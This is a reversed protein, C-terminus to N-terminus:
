FAESWSYSGGRGSGRHLAFNIPNKGTLYWGGSRAGRSLINFEEMVELPEVLLQPDCVVVKAARDLLAEQAIGPWRWAAMALAQGLRGEDYDSTVYSVNADLIEPFPVLNVGLPQELPLDRLWLEFNVRLRLVDARADLVDCCLELSMGQRDGFMSYIFNLADWRIDSPVNQEWLTHIYGYIM